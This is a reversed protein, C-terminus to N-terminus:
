RKLEAPVAEYYQQWEGLRISDRKCAAIVGSVASDVGTAGPGVGAGATGAPGAAGSAADPLTEYARRLRQTLAAVRSDSDGLRKRIDAEQELAKKAQERELEANAKEQQLQEVLEPVRQAQRYIHRAYLLGSLIIALVVAGAILKIQTV